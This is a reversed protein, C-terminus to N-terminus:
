RLTLQSPDPYYIPFLSCLFPSPPSANYAPSVLSLFHQFPFPVSSPIAFSPPLTSSHTSIRDHIITVAHHPCATPAAYNPPLSPFSLMHPLSPCASNLVPTVISTPPFSPCPPCLPFPLPCSSIGCLARVYSRPTHELLSFAHSSPVLVEPLLCPAVDLAAIFRVALLLFAHSASRGIETRHTGLCSV